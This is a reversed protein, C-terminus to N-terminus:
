ACQYLDPEVTRHAGLREVLPQVVHVVILRALCGGGSHAPGERQDPSPMIEALHTFSPYPLDARCGSETPRQSVKPPRVRVLRAGFSVSQLKRM